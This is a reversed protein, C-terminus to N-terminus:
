CAQEGSGGDGSTANPQQLGGVMLSLMDMVDNEFAAVQEASERVTGYQQRNGGERSGGMECGSSSTHGGPTGRAAHAAEEGAAEEDEDEDEEARSGRDDVVGEGIRAPLHGNRSGRGDNDAWAGWGAAPGQDGFAVRSRSNPTVAQWDDNDNNNVASRGGAGPGVEQELMPESSRRRRQERGGGVSFSAEAAAEATVGGGGGGIVAARYHNATSAARDGQRRQLAKRELRRGREEQLRDEKGTEEAEDEEEREEVRDDHYDHGDGRRAPRPIYDPQEHGSREEGGHDAASAMSDTTTEEEDRRRPSSNWHRTATQRPDAGEDADMSVPQYRRSQHQQQHHQQQEERWRQQQQQQHHHHQQQERAREVLHGGKRTSVESSTSSGHDGRKVIESGSGSGSEYLALLDYPPPYDDYSPPHNGDEDATLPITPSTRQDYGRGDVAAGEAEEDSGRLFGPDTEPWKGQQQGEAWLPHGGRGAVLPAAGGASSLAAPGPAVPGAKSPLSSAAESNSAVDDDDDGGGGGGDGRDVGERRGSIRGGWGWPQADERPTWPSAMPAMPRPQNRQGLTTKFRYSSPGNKMSGSDRSRSFAPRQNKDVGGSRM